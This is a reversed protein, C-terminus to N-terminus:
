WMFYMFLECYSNYNMVGHVPCKHITRLCSIRREILVSFVVSKKLINCLEPLQLTFINQTLPFDLRVSTSIKVCCLAFLRVSHM